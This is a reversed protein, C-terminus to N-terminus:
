LEVIAVSGGLHDSVEAAFRRRAARYADLLKRFERRNPRRPSWAAVFHPAANDDTGVTFEVEFGLPLLYTRTLTAIRAATM